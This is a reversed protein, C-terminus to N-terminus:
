SKRKLRITGLALIATGLMAFTSPEPATSISQSWTNSFIGGTTQAAAAVAAMTTNNYQGSIIDTFAASSLIGSTDIATGILGISVTVSTGVQTLVFGGVCMQTATTTCTNPVLQNAQLNITSLSPVGIFAIFNNLTVPSGVPLYSFNTQAPADAIDLITAASSAGIAAFTGTGGSATIQGKGYGAGTAGSGTCSSAPSTGPDTPCWDLYHVTGGANAFTMVGAGTTGFGGSIQTASLSSIGLACFIGIVIAKKVPRLIYNQM